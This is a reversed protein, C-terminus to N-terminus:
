KGNYIEYNYQVPPTIDYGKRGKNKEMWDEIDEKIKKGLEENDSIDGGQNSIVADLSGIVVGEIENDVEQLLSGFFEFTKMKEEGKYDTYIIHLYYRDTHTVKKSINESLYKGLAMARDSSEDANEESTYEYFIFKDKEEQRNSNRYNVNFDNTMYKFIYWENEIDTPVYFIIYSEAWINVNTINGGNNSLTYKYNAIKDTGETEEVKDWVSECELTFYPEMNKEEIELQNEYIDMTRFSVIVGIIGLFFLSFIMQFIELFIKNSQLFGKIKSERENIEIEKTNENYFLKKM